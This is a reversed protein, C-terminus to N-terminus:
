VVINNYAFLLFGATTAQARQILTRSAEFCSHDFDGNVKNIFSRSFLANAIVWEDPSNGLDYIGGSSVAFEEKLKDVWSEYKQHRHFVLCNSHYPQCMDQVIHLSAGIFFVTKHANKKRWFSLAANFWIKSQEPAPPWILFGRRKVPDFHHAANKWMLDAWYNGRILYEINHAYFDAAARHGDNRLILIGQETLFRHTGGPRDFLRQFPMGVYRLLAQPSIKRYLSSITDRFSDKNM